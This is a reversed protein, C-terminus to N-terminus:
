DISLLSFDAKQIESANLNCWDEFGSSFAKQQLFFANSHIIFSHKVLPFWKTGLLLVLSHKEPPQHSQPLGTVRKREWCPKNEEKKLTKQKRRFRGRQLRGLQGVKAKAHKRLLKQTYTFREDLEAKDKSQEAM